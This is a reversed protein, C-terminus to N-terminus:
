RHSALWSKIEDMNDKFGPSCRTTMLAHLPDQSDIVKNQPNAAVAARLRDKSIYGFVAKDQSLIMMSPPLKAMRDPTMEQTAQALSCLSKLTFEYNFSPAKFDKECYKALVQKVDLDTVLKQADPQRGLESAKCSTEKTFPWHFSTPVESPYDWVGKAICAQRLKWGDPGKVNLAPDLGIVAKYKGPHLSAELGAMVGGTSHGMIYLPKALKEAQAGAYAVDAKWENLSAKKLMDDEGGHGNLIPAVVNYGAKRLENALDRVHDPSASLGHVLVITGKAAGDARLIYPDNQPTVGCKEESAAYKAFDAAASAACDGSACYSVSRDPSCSARASSIQALWALSFILAFKM